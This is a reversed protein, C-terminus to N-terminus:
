QMPRIRNRVNPETMDATGTESVPGTTETADLAGSPEMSDYTPLIADTVNPEVTVPVTPMIPEKPATPLTEMENKRRTCGCGTLMTVTLVLVTVLIAYKKM